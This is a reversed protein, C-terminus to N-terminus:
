GLISGRSLPSFLHSALICFLALVESIERFVRQVEM